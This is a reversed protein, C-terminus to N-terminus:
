RNALLRRSLWRIRDKAITLNNINPDLYVANAVEDDTMHGGALQTRECNYRVGHPDPEGIERWHAAPTVKTM